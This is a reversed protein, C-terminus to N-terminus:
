SIGISVLRFSIVVPVQNRIYYPCYSVSSSNSIFRNVDGCDVTLILGGTGSVLALGGTIPSGCAFRYNYNYVYFPTTNFSNANGLRLTPYNEYTCSFDLLLQKKKDIKISAPCVAFAKYNWNVGEISSWVKIGLVDNVKIDYFNYCSTTFFRNVSVNYSGTNVSAGNKMIRYYIVASTSGTNKGGFYLLATYVCSVELPLVPLHSEQVTYTVQPIEPESTPLDIPTDLLEEVPTSLTINIIQKPQVLSSLLRGEYPMM